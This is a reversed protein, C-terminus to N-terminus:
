KNNFLQEPDIGELELQNKIKLRADHVLKYLANRNTNMQKAVVSISHGEIMLSRIAHRQKDTLENNIIDIVKKLVLQEHTAEDPAPVDTAFTLSSLENRGANGPYKFDEIYSDDYKKRRLETLGERVAIKMAWTMFKSEGRFTDINDLIKLLADQAVDEVFQDLEFDVYKYLAPKLGKVLNQRLKTVAQEDVPDSLGQM